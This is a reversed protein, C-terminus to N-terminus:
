LEGKGAVTLILTYTLGHTDEEVVKKIIYTENTTVNTYARSYKNKRKTIKIKTAKYILVDIRYDAKVILRHSGVDKSRDLSEIYPLNNSFYDVLHGRLSVANLKTRLDKGLTDDWVTGYLDFSINEM